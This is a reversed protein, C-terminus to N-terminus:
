FQLLLNNKYNFCDTYEEHHYLAIIEKSPIDEALAVKYPEDRDKFTKVAKKKSVVERVVSYDTKALKFMRDEIAQLDDDNLPEPLEFDYYFGDDIAPGIGLKASPYRKQVAQALVHAASHRITDLSYSRKGM